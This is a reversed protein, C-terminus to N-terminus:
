FLSNLPGPTKVNSFRLCAGFQAAFRWDNPAKVAGIQHRDGIKVPRATERCLWAVSARGTTQTIVCSRQSQWLTRIGPGQNVPRWLFKRAMGGSDSNCLFVKLMTM